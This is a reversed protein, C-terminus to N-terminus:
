PWADLSAEGSPIPWLRQMEAEEKLWTMFAQVKPWRAKEPTTVMWYAQRFKMVPGFPQVLRGAFLEESCLRLKALAVGEGAVAGMVVFSSNSFQPGRGPDVNEIGVDGLWRTWDIHRNEEGADDHLLVYHELDEPRKLGPPKTVLGPACVPLLAENMLHEVVLDPYNGLGFRIGVDVPERSFDSLRETAVIMVDVDPARKRFRRLRPMLWMQTFSTMTTVRLAGDSDQATLEQTAFAIRDFAGSIAPLYRHGAETLELRRNLRTFLQVELQAELTAIQHSVAGQTVSLEKAAKTFSLHRAAAEFARLANLNPLRRM